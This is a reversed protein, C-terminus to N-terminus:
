GIKEGTNASLVRGDPFKVTLLRIMNTRPDIATNGFVTITDGKKFMSPKWGNRVLWSVPSSEARWLVPKGDAGKVYFRLISHPNVFRFEDIVGTQTTTNKLDFYATVSHHASAPLVAAVAILAGIAIRKIM